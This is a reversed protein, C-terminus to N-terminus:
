CADVNISNAQIIRYLDELILPTSLRRFKTHFARIKLSLEENPSVLIVYLDPNVAVARKVFEVAALGQIRESILLYDYHHKSILEMAKQAVTQLQISCGRDSLFETLLDGMESAGDLILVKDRERDM